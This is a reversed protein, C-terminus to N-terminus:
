KNLMDTIEKAIEFKEQPTIPEIFQTPQPESRKYWEELKLIFKERIDKLVFLIMILVGFM